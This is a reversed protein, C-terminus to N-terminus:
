QRPEAAVLRGFAVYRQAASYLPHCATLVIREYGVNDVVEVDYPDVIETKEVKYTFRGYPMEVRIEDGKSLENIRRFPALYTTRHGAVGITKGEGPLATDPYHGPGKRLTVEDTGQFMVDDQGMEPIDIRGIAQGTKVKEAFLEALRKSDGPALVEANEAGRAIQRQLAAVDDDSAFDDSVDDLEGGAQSQQISGYVTSIPEKWILTMAVDVMVVVGATILAISFIRLARRM